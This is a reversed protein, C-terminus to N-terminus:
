SFVEEVKEWFLTSASGCHNAVEERSTFWDYSLAGILKNGIIDCGALYAEAVARDFPQPTGPLHLFIEHKNFIENLLHFPQGGIDKCNPPLPEDPLPNGSMIEVQIEPHGKAWQLVNDRGKFPFLSSVCIVGKRPLKMDYFVKSDIPSPVIAYPRDRLEPCTFLWSERHLPSLWILLKAELLVSLWLDRRYCTKCKELMPYHLRYKAIPWYDHFFWICPKKKELLRQFIEPRSFQSVNSIIIPSNDTLLNEL